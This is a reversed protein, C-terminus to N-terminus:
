HWQNQNVLCREQQLHSITTESRTSSKLYFLALLCHWILFQKSRRMSNSFSDPERLIPLWNQTIMSSLRIVEHDQQWSLGLWWTRFWKALCCNSWLKAGLKMLCRSAARTIATFQLNGSSNSSALSTWRTMMTLSSCSRMSKLWWWSSNTSTSCPMIWTTSELCRWWTLSQFSKRTAKDERPHMAASLTKSPPTNTSCSVSCPRTSKFCLACATKRVIRKQAQLTL